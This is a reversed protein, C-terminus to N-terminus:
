AELQVVTLTVTITTTGGSKNTVALQINTDPSTENSFGLAGPSVLITQAGTTIVEAIVGAGPAPDVGELRSGDATRSAIDTYIRVWAAASTQIKYLMYGKYGTITLNGTAANALSATTASINSRSQLSGGGGSVTGPLWKSSTSNWVLSQGNTPPTTSTDVDSLADISTSSYAAPITPLNSLDNYSGSTAVTALSPGTITVQGEGDTATTIGASGVFKLTEGSFLRRVTSDDGAVNLEFDGTGSGGTGGSPTPGWTVEKDSPNYYLVQPGTVERIPSVYFGIASGNLVIGSANIIISGAPQNTVGAQNGIAIANNGQNNQGAYVGVAVASNGQNFEGANSGVAVAAQSQNLKGAYSGIGVTYGQPNTKQAEWGIGVTYNSTSTAGANYGLYISAESTRLRGTEIDGVIKGTAANILLTSTESYVNGKVYNVDITLSDNIENTSLVIGDGAVFTVTDSANDAQLPNQGPTSVAINVFGYRTNSVVVTGTSTNIGIGSGASIATVGTNTLTLSGTSGSVSLGPSAVALSTVGTNTVTVTDSAPTTTINIGNGNALTLTALPDGAILTVQGSVAINRYLNQTTNPASNTIRVVGPTSTDLSIGSGPDTVVSLVGTNAVTINGTAASVSMGSGAVLGTVGTNTFTVAGSAASVGIGTGALASTVGNNTITLTDTSANTTISIGGGSAINLVDNGGADAVISDQGTVAISKFYEQDLISGGISSGPPLNVKGDVSSIVADGLYITTGTLYLDRWRKTTSGLDYTGSDSPVVNTPLANFDVVGGPGGVTAYLETFNLNIDEFAQDITSWLIPAKKPDITRRAM